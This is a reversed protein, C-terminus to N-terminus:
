NFISLDPRLHFRRVLESAVSKLLFRDVAQFLKAVTCPNSPIDLLYSTEVSPLFNELRHNVLIIAEFRHMEPFPLYHIVMEISNTTKAKILQLRVVHYSKRLFEFGGFSYSVSM